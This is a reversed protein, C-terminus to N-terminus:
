RSFNNHLVSPYCGLSDMNLSDDGQGLRELNQLPWHILVPYWITTFDDKYAKGQTIKARIYNWIM